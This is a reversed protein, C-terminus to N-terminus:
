EILAEAPGVPAHQQCIVGAIVLAIGLFDLAAPKQDLAIYAIFIAEIPTLALLLAFRGAPIRRLIHQDLGYGIVTTFLGVACCGILV